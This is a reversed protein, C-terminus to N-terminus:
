RGDTTDEEADLEDATPDDGPVSIVAYGSEAATVARDEDFHRAGTAPDADGDVRLAYNIGDTSAYLWAVATEPDAALVGASADDVTYTLGDLPGGSFQIDPM